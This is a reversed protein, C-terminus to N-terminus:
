DGIRRTVMDSGFPHVPWSQFYAGFKGADGGAVVLKVMEPGRFKPLPTDPPIREAFVPPPEPAVGLVGLGGAESVAAVLAPLAVFGMGAGVFPYRLGFSETLRTKIEPERHRDDEHAKGPRAGLALGLGGAGVVQLLRRRTVTEMSQVIKM